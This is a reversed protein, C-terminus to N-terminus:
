PSSRALWLGGFWRCCCPAFAPRPRHRFIIKKDGPWNGPCPRVPEYPKTMYLEQAIQATNGWVTVLQSEGTAPLHQNRLKYRNLPRSSHCAPACSSRGNNNLRGGTRAGSPGASLLDTEDDIGRPRAGLPWPPPTRRKKIPEQRRRGSV